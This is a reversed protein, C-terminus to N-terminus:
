TGATAKSNVSSSIAVSTDRPSTKSNQSAHNIEKRQIVSKSMFAQILLQTLFEEIEKRCGADLTTWCIIAADFIDQQKFDSV